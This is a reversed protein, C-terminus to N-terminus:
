KEGHVTYPVATKFLNARNRKGCIIIVGLMQMCYTMKGALRRSINLALALDQNSFPQALRPPLFSIMDAPNELLIRDIVGILRRDVISVGSRRWSGRGDGRRIEEEQILLIELSFNPHALLNPIHVLEFFVDLPSGHRPSRRRYLPADGQPPLKIIWKEQAIPHVLRVRHRELLDSLKPKLAAFNRTQIEILLNGSHVDIWYGDVPSEKISGTSAYYEKLAYHLSTEQM